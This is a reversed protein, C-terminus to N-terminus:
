AEGVVQTGCQGCKGTRKLTAYSLGLAIGCSPCILGHSKSLRTVNRLFATRPIQVLLLMVAIAVATKYASAWRAGLTEYLLLLGFVSAMFVALPVLMQRLLHRQYASAANHLAVPSFLYM